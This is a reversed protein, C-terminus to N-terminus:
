FLILILIINWLMDRGKDETPPAPLVLDNRGIRHPDERRARSSERDQGDLDDGQDARESTQRM